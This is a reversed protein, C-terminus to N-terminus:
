LTVRCDFVMQMLVIADQDVAIGTKRFLVTVAVLTIGKESSIVQTVVRAILHTNHRIPIRFLTKEIRLTAAVAHQKERETTVLIIRVQGTATRARILGPIQQIVSMASNALSLIDQQQNRHRAMALVTAIWVDARLVQMMSGHAALSHRRLIATRAIWRQLCTITQNLRRVVAMVVQGIVITISVRTILRRAQLRIELLM